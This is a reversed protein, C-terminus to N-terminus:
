DTNILKSAYQPLTVSKIIGFKEVRFKFMELGEHKQEFKFNGWYTDKFIKPYSTKDSFKLVGGGCKIIKRKTNTKRKTDTKRGSKKLSVKRKLVVM